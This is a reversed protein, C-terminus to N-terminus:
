GGKENGKSERNARQANRWGRWGCAGGLVAADMSDGENELRVALLYGSFRGHLLHNNFHEEEYKEKRGPNDAPSPNGHM